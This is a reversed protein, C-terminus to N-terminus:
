GLGCIPWLKLPHEPEDLLVFDLVDDDVLNIAQRAVPDIIREDVQRELLGTGLQHRDRLVDVLRRRPQQQM